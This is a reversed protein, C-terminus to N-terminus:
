QAVGPQLGFAMVSVRNYAPSPRVSADVARLLYFAATGPQAAQADPAIYSMLAAPAINDAIRVGGAPPAFYPAGFARWVEYHHADAGM